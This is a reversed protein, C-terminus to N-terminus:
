ARETIRRVEAARDYHQRSKMEFQAEWMALAVAHVRETAADLSEGRQVRVSVGVPGVTFDGFREEGMTVTLVDGERVYEQPPERLRPMRALMSSRDEMAAEVEAVFAGAEETLQEM